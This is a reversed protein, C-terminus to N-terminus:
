LGADDFPDVPGNGGPATRPTSDVLQVDSPFMHFRIQLNGSRDKFKELSFDGTATVLDGDAPVYEGHPAKMDTFNFYVSKSAELGPQVKCLVALSYSLYPKGAKSVKSEVRQVFGKITAEM